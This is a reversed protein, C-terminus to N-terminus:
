LACRLPQTAPVAWLAAISAALEARNNQALCIFLCIKRIWLDLSCEVAWLALGPLKRLIHATRLCKVSM